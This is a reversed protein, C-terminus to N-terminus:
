EKTRTGTYARGKYAVWDCLAINNGNVAGDTWSVKNDDNSYGNGDYSCTDTAWSM